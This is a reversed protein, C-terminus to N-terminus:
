MGILNPKSIHITKDIFFFLNHKKIAYEDGCKETEFKDYHFVFIAM